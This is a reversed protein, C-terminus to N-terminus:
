LLATEQKNFFLFTFFCVFLHKQHSRHSGLCTEEGRNGKAEWQLNLTELFREIVKM